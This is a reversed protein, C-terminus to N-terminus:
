ERGKFRLYSQLNNYPRKPLEAARAMDTTLYYMWYDDFVREGLKAFPGAGKLLKDIEISLEHESEGFRRARRTRQRWKKATHSRSL